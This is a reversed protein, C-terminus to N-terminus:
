VATNFTEDMFNETTNDNTDYAFDTNATVPGKVASLRIPM